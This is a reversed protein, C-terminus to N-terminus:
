KYIIKSVDIKSVEVEVRLKKILSECENWILEAAFLPVRVNSFTPFLTM